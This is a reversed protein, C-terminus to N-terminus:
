RQVISSCPIARGLSSTEASLRNKFYTEYFRRIRVEDVGQIQDIVGWATMVVTDADIKQYPRVIGWQELDPLDEALQELRTVEDPDSLNYSIIVHGHEMNHVIMEDAVAQDYVGCAATTGWYSGSTPPLTTYAVAQGVPVHSASTAAVSTGVSPDPSSRGGGAVQSESGSCSSLVFSGIILFIPVGPLVFSGFRRGLSAPEAGTPRNGSLPRRCHSCLADDDASQTGCRSCHM